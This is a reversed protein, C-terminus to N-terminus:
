FEYYFVYSGISNPLDTGQLWQLLQCVLLSVRKGASVIHIVVNGNMVGLGGLRYHGADALINNLLAERFYFRVQDKTNQGHRYVLTLDYRSCHVNVCAVAM